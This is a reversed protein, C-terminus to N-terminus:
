RGSGGGGLRGAKPNSWFWRIWRGPLPRRKRAFSKGVFATSRWNRVIHQDFGFNPWAWDLWAEGMEPHHGRPHRHFFQQQECVSFHDNFINLILTPEPTPVSPFLPPIMLHNISSHRVAERPVNRFPFRNRENNTWGRFKCTLCYIVRWVECM